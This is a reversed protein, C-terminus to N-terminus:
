STKDTRKVMNSYVAAGAFLLTSIIFQGSIFVWIGTIFLLGILINKKDLANM